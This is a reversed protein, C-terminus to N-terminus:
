PESFQVPIALLFGVMSQEGLLFKDRIRSYYINHYWGKIVSTGIRVEQGIECLYVESHNSWHYVFAMHQNDDSWAMAKLDNSGVCLDWRWIEEKTERDFVGFVNPLEEPDVLQVYTEHDFSFLRVTDPLPWDSSGVSHALCGSLFPLAILFLGYGFMKSKM